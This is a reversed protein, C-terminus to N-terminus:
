SIDHRIPLKQFLPFIQFQRRSCIIPPAKLTLAIRLILNERFNGFKCYMDLSLLNRRGVLGINVHKNKYTNLHIYVCSLRSDPSERTSISKGVPYITVLSVSFFEARNSCDMLRFLASNVLLAITMNKSLTLIEM